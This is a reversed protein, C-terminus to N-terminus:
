SFELCRSLCFGRYVWGPAGVPAGPLGPTIRMPNFPSHREKEPDGRDAASLTGAKIDTKAALKLMAKAM